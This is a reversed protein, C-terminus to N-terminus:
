PSEDKIYPAIVEKLPRWGIAKGGDDIRRWGGMLAGPDHEEHAAEIEMLLRVPTGDLPATRIDQWEADGARKADQLLDMDNQLEAVRAISQEAITRLAAYDSAPVVVRGPTTDAFYPMAREPLQLESMAGAKEALATVAEADASLQRILDRGQMVAKALRHGDPLAALAAAAEALDAYLKDPSEIPTM